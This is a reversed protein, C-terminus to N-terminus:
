QGTCIHYGVPKEVLVGTLEGTTVSGGEEQNWGGGPESRRLGGPPNSLPEMRGVSAELTAKRSSEVRTCVDDLLAVALGLVRESHCRILSNSLLM